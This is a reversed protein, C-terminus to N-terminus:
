NASSTAASESTMALLRGSSAGTAPATAETTGAPPQPNALRARAEPGLYVNLTESLARYIVPASIPDVCSTVIEFGEASDLEPHRRCAAAWFLIGINTMTPNVWIDSLIPKGTRAEFRSAAAYDLVLNFDLEVRGNDRFLELKLPVAPVVLKHWAGTGNGNTM